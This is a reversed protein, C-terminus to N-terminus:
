PVKNVALALPLAGEIQPLYGVRRSCLRDLPSLWEVWWRKQCGVGVRSFGYQRM